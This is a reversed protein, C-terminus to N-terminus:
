WFRIKLYRWFTLIFAWLLWNETQTVTRIPIIEERIWLARPDLDPQIFLDVHPYFAADNYTEIKEVTHHESKFHINWGAKSLPKNMSCISKLLRFSMWLLQHDSRCWVTKGWIKLHRLTQVSFSSVIETLRCLWLLYQPTFLLKRHTRLRKPQKMMPRYRWFSESRKM